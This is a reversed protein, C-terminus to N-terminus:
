APDSEDLEVDGTDIAVSDDDDPIPSTPPHPQPQPQPEPTSMRDDPIWYQSLECFGSPIPTRREEREAEERNIAALEELYTRDRLFPIPHFGGSICFFKALPKGAIQVRFIRRLTIGTASSSQDRHRLTPHDVIPGVFLKQRSFEAHLLRIVAVVTVREVILYDSVPNGTTSIV